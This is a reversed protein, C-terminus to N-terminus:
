SAIGYLPRYQEGNYMSSDQMALFGARTWKTLGDEIEHQAPGTELAISTLVGRLKELSSNLQSSSAKLSLLDSLVGQLEEEMVKCNTLTILSSSSSSILLCTM